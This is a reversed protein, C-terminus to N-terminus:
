PRAAVVPAASTPLTEGTVSLTRLYNLIDWRQQDTLYDKTGKKGWAPMATREIGNTIWDFLQGDPHLGVHVTLDLPKPNLAAAAPGDGHGSDGHCRACNQAYLAKGDAISRADAPVPNLLGIYASTGTPRGTAVVALGVVVAGVMCFIGAQGVWPNLAWVRRRFLFLALGLAVLVGGWFQQESIGHAPFATASRSAASAATTTAGNVDPVQVTFNGNADDHGDRRVNATVRWDGVFGFNAAQADFLGPTGAVPPLDLTSQGAAGTAIQFRLEVRSIKDVDPGAIQAKFDNQGVRNPSVTLTITLDSAPATNRYVSSIQPANKALKQGNSQAVADKAPVFFVLVATAAIVAAGLLSEVIASRALSQSRGPADVSVDLAASEFRRAIRVANLAGVILLPAIIALKVILAQGYTTHLLADWSPIQVLANFTGSLLVLGVCLVAMTSFRRLAQGQFRVRAPGDLSHRVLLLAPLLVVGGLWLSVGALHLFDVPVAWDSGAGAAAHSTLSMTLLAGCGLLLGGGLMVAIPKGEPREERQAILWSLLLVLLLLGGRILADRGATSSLVESISSTGGSAEIMRVITAADMILALLAAAPVAAGLLWLAYTRARRDDPVALSEAAPYLVILTFAFGGAVGILGILMLWRVISDVPDLGASGGSSSTASPPTGAPTSGDANLVTFPFAGTLHHGDVASVTTWEVTYFGPKLATLDDRMETPDSSFSVNKKDVQVGNTDRVDVTSLKKDLPESFFLDVNAPPAPLRANAAPTSRLLVAHALAGSAGGIALSIATLVLVTLWRRVSV